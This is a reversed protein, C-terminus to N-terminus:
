SSPILLQWYWNSRSGHQKDVNFEGVFMPKKLTHQCDHTWHKLLQQTQTINLNAWPATPYPHASCFDINKIAHITLFHNGEDGGFGYASGHGEIGSSILQHPALKRIFTSM